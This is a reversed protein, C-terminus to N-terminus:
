PASVRTHLRPFFTSLLTMSCMQAFNMTTHTLRSQKPLLRMHMRIFFILELVEFTFTLPHVKRDPLKGYCAGLLEWRKHVQAKHSAWVERDKDDAESRADKNVADTKIPSVEEYCALSTEALPCARKLFRIALGFKEGKYLSGAVNFYAGALCRLYNAINKKRTIAEETSSASASYHNIVEEAKQLYDYADDCTNPRQVNLYSTALNFLSDM